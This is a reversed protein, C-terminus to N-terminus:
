VTTRAGGDLGFLPALGAIAVTRMASPPVSELVLQKGTNETANRLEIWCGLGTSDLFSLGALDLVLTTCTPDNLAPQAAERLQPVTALDLEGELSVILRDADRRTSLTLSSM